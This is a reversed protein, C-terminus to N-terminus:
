EIGSDGPVAAPHHGRERRILYIGSAIIVAAGAFTRANPVTSWLIYDLIVGWALATYEFPAIFSSEAMKFAETIGWQGTFGFIAVGLLVPLHHTDVPVWHPWAWASAGVAVMVMLWFVMSETSDTRGLVRVSIASLAYGVASLLVAIAAKTTLGAATPRLVILVGCMGVAIAAWRQWEIHERLILAAFTTILLPAAFFITYTEALPLEHVGYVFGALTLIGLIGRVLHLTFRIKAIRRFGGTFGIWIIVVPLSSLGRLAAVQMPPYSASLVKMCTDMMAFSGVAALMVIGGKVNDTKAVRHHYPTM